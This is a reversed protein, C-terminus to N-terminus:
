TFYRETILCTPDMAAQRTILQRVSVVELGCPFQQVSDVDRGGVGRLVQAIEQYMYLETFMGLNKKPRYIAM